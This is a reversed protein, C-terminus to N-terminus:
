PWWKVQRLNGGIKHYVVNSIIAGSVQGGFFYVEDDSYATAVMYTPGDSGYPDTPLYDPPSYEWANTAENFFETTLTNGGPSRGGFAFMVNGVLVLCGRFHGEQFDPFNEDWRISM